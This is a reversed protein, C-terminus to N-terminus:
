GATGGVKSVLAVSGVLIVARKASDPIVVNLDVQQTEAPLPYMTLNSCSTCEVMGGGLAQKASGRAVAQISVGEMPAGSDADEMVVGLIEHLLEGILSGWKRMTTQTDVIFSGGRGQGLKRFQDSSFEVM